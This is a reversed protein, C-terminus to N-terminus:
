PAHPTLVSQHETQKQARKSRSRNTQAAGNAPRQAQFRELGHGTIARNARGMVNNATFIVGYNPQRQPRSNTGRNPVYRHEHVHIKATPM